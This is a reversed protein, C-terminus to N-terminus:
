IIKKLIKKKHQVIFKPMFTNFAWNVIWIAAAYGVMLGLADYNRSPLITLMVAGLFIWFVIRIIKKM